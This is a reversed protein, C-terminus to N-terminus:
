VMIFDKAAFMLAEVVAMLVVSQAKSIELIRGKSYIVPINNSLAIAYDGNSWIVRDIVQQYPLFEKLNRHYFLIQWGAITSLPYERYKVVEGAPHLSPSYVTYLNMRVESTNVINHHTGAPINVSWGAGIPIKVGDLLVYGVGQEIKIFQDVQHLELGIDQYPLLSMLSLQSLPTTEIIHRFNHNSETVRDLPRVHNM